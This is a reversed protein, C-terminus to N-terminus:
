GDSRNQNILHARSEFQHSFPSHGTDHLLAALRVCWNFYQVASAFPEQPISSLNSPLSRRILAQFYRGAVHAVGISHEFRSHRAGPFVLFSVDNQFIHRLRQFLPQDIADLEHEFLPIGGHIPDMILRTPTGFLELDFSM